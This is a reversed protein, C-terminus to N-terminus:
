EPMGHNEEYDMCQAYTKSYYTTMVCEDACDRYWLVFYQKAEIVKPVSSGAPIDLTLLPNIAEYQPTLSTAVVVRMPINGTNTFVVKATNAEECDDGGGDDDGKKCSLTACTIALFLLALKISKM